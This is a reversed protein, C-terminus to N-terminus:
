VSVVYPAPVVAEARKLQLIVRDGIISAGVPFAMAPLALPRATSLAASPAVFAAECSLEPCSSASRSFSSMLPLYTLPTCHGLGSALM